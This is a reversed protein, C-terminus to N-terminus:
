HFQISKVSSIKEFWSYQKSQSSMLKDQKLDYKDQTLDITMSISRLLSYTFIYYWDYSWILRDKYDKLSPLFFMTLWDPFITREAILCILTILLKVKM